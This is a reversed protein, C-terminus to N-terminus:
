SKFKHQRSRPSISKGGPQSFQATKIQIDRSNIKRVSM